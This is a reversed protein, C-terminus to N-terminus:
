FIVLRCFTISFDLDPDNMFIAQSPVLKVYPSSILSESVIDDADPEEIATVRAFYWYGDEIIRAKFLRFIVNDTLPKGPSLVVSAISLHFSLVDDSM